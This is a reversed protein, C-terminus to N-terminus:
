KTKGKVNGMKEKGPKNAVAKISKKGTTVRTKRRKPSEPKEAAAAKRKAHQSTPPWIGYQIVKGLTSEVERAIIIWESLQQRQEDTRESITEEGLLLVLVWVLACIFRWIGNKGSVSDLPSWNDDDSDREPLINEWWAHIRGLLLNVQDEPVEMDMWEPRGRGEWENMLELELASQLHGNNETFRFAEEYEIFTEMLAELDELWDEHERGVWARIFRRMEPWFKKEAKSKDGSPITPTDTTPSTNPVPENSQFVTVSSDSTLTPLPSDITPLSHDSVQPGGTPDTEPRSEETASKSSETQNQIETTKNHFESDISAHNVGISNRPVTSHRQRTESDVTEVLENQSSSTGSVNETTNGGDIPFMAKGFRILAAKTSNYSSPDFKPWLLGSPTKGHHVWYVKIKGDVHGFFATMAGMNLDAALAGTIKSVAPGWKKIANTQEEETREVQKIVTKGEEWKRRSEEYGQDALRQMEARFDEDQQELLRKAAAYNIAVECLHNAIRLIIEQLTGNRMILKLLKGTRIQVDTLRHPKTKRQKATTSLVQQLVDNNALNRHERRYYNGIKTRMDGFAKMRVLLEECPLTSWGLQRTAQQFSATDLGNDGDNSGDCGTAPTIPGSAAIQGGDGSAIDPPLDDASGVIIGDLASDGNRLLTAGKEASNGSETNILRAPDHVAANVDKAPLDVNTTQSQQLNSEVAPGSKSVTSTADRDKEEDFLLFYKTTVSTYFSTVTKAKFCKEYENYHEILFKEIDGNKRYWAVRGPAKKEGTKIRRTM